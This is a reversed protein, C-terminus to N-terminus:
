VNSIQLFRHDAVSSYGLSTLPPTRSPITDAPVLFSMVPDALHQAKLRLKREDELQQELVKIRDSASEPIPWRTGTDGCWARLKQHSLRHHLPEKENYGSPALLEHINAKLTDVWQSIAANSATDLSGPYEPQVDALIYAADCLEFISRNAYSEYWDANTDGRLAWTNFKKAQHTM